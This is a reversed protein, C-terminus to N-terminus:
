VIIGSGPFASVPKLSLATGWPPSSLPSSSTDLPPQRTCVLISIGKARSHTQLAAPQEQYSQWRDLSRSQEWGAKAAGM